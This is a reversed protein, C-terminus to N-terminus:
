ILVLSFKFQSQMKNLDSMFDKNLSVAEPLIVIAPRLYFLYVFQFALHFDIPPAEFYSQRYIANAKFLHNYFNFESLEEIMEHFDYFPSFLELLPQLEESKERFCYTAGFYKHAFARYSMRTGDLDVRLPFFQKKYELNLVRTTFGPLQQLNVTEAAVLKIDLNKYYEDLFKIKNTFIRLKKFKLAKPKFTKDSKFLVQTVILLVPLYLGVRLSMFLMHTFILVMLSLLVVDQSLILFMEPFVVELFPMFLVFLTLVLVVLQNAFFLSANRKSRFLVDYFNLDAFRELFKEAFFGRLFKLSSVAYYTESFLKSKFTQNKNVLKRSFGFAVLLVLINLGLIIFFMALFEAKFILLLVLTAILLFVVNVFNFIVNILSLSIMEAFNLIRATALFNKSFSQTATTLIHRMEHMRKEAVKKYVFSNLMYEFWTRICLFILLAVVVFIFTKLFQTKDLLIDFSVYRNLVFPLVLELVSVLFLVSTVLYFEKCLLWNIFNRICSWKFFEREVSTKLDVYEVLSKLKNRM